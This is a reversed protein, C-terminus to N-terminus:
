GQLLQDSTDILRSIKETAGHMQQSMQRRYLLYDDAIRIAAMIAIRETSALHAEQAVRGMIENVYQALERVYEGSGQSKLKFHQGRIRVEISESM